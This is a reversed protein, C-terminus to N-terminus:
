RSRAKIEVVFLDAPSQAALAWGAAPAEDILCSLPDLHVPGRSTEAMVSGSHCFVCLVDAGTAARQVGRVRLRRVLHTHTNRRTMVNFDVVPGALLNARVPVDGPFTFPASAATLRVSPEDAIALELGEGQLISLTRDVGQFISFAGDTAVAAMSIRWQLEDLGASAPSVAIETTEGGGNKWPMRRYEDSRLVQM